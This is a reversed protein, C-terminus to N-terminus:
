FALGSLGPFFTSLSAGSFVLMAVLLVAAILLAIGLGVFVSLVKGKSRQRNGEAVQQKASDVDKASSKVAEAMAAAQESAARAAAEAAAAAKQAEELAEQRAVEAPDAAPLAAPTQAASVNALSALLATALARLTEIDVSPEVWDYEDDTETYLESVFQRLPFLPDALDMDSGDGTLGSMFGLLEMNFPMATDAEDTEYSVDDADIVVTDGGLGFESLDPGAAVEAYPSDASFRDLDEDATSQAPRNRASGFIASNAGMLADPDLAFDQDILDDLNIDTM